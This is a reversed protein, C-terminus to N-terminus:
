PAKKEGDGLLLKLMTKAKASYVRLSATNVARYKQLMVGDGGFWFPYVGGLLYGRARLCDVAFSVYPSALPLYVQTTELGEAPADANLKEIKVAFDSGIKVCDEKLLGIAPFKRRFFVSEGSQPRDECLPFFSRARLGQYFFLLTEAYSKPIYVPQVVAAPHEFFAVIFSIRGAGGALPPMAGFAIACDTGGNQAAKRQSYYHDAVNETFVADYDILPPFERKAFTLLGGAAKGNRYGEAVSLMGLEYVRPNRSLRKLSIMGAVRSGDLALAVLEDRRCHAAWAEKATPLALDSYSGAYVKEIIERVLDATQEQLLTFEVDKSM